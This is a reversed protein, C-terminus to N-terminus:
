RVTLTHAGVAFRVTDGATVGSLTANLTGYLMMDGGSVANHVAADTIDATPMNVFDIVGTNQTVGSAAADLAFAQRAYSGGTSETGGGTRDTADTYTAEYITAAPTHAQNRLFRDIILNRFYNTANSGATFSVDIEGIGVTIAQGLTTTKSATLAGHFLFNGASVADCVAAHTFTGAPMNTFTLSATNATTGTSGASFTIAQRAYSGGTAETGGGSDTTATTFLALYVTAAPSYAQARLLHDIVEDELYDSMQTM